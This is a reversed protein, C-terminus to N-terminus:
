KIGLSSLSCSSDSQEPVGSMGVASLMGQWDSTDHLPPLTQRPGARVGMLAQVLSFRM